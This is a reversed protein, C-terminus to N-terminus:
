ELKTRWLPPAATRAIYRRSARKSARISSCLDGCLKMNGHDPMFALGCEACHREELEKEAALPEDIWELTLRRFVQSLPSFIVDYAPLPRRTFGIAPLVGCARPVKCVPCAYETPPEEIGSVNVRIFGDDQCFLALTIYPLFGIALLALTEGTIRRNGPTVPTV